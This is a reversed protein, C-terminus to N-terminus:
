VKGPKQSCQSWFIPDSIFFYVKNHGQHRSLHAGIIDFKTYFWSGLHMVSTRALSQILFFVKSVSVKKLM